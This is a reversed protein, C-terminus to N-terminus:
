AARTAVASAGDCQHWMWSLRQGAANGQDRTCRAADAPRYGEREGGSARRDADGITFPGGIGFGHDGLDHVGSRGRHGDAHSM